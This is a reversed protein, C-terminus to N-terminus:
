VAREYWKKAMDLELLQHYAIGTKNAVIASDKPGTQYMEAAERYMKRAMFIDGRVEPTLTKAISEPTTKDITTVRFGNATQAQAPQFTLVTVLLSLGSVGFMSVM